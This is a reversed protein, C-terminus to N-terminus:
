APGLEVRKIAGVVFLYCAIAVLANAAVFVLALNFSNTGQVIYGIVIPTTIAAVSGFTNFLGGSLGTIEKPSTDSVVAWGLSGIGKGFYSLTMILIVLWIADVYNCIIMTTSLVLGLIIPVKRAATLSYGRRLLYDSFVGGLVGGAFGALAPLTAVFGTKLISLGRGTVLYVPFWTVFFYTLTTICYQALYVGLMMRNGLLQRLYPKPPRGATVRTRAALDMDVLAGGRELYDLEGPSMRPHDRPPHITRRWVLALGLGVMGMFFFVYRWGLRATIAGTIPAFLATSFYQASNFVASATGRESTPFWAAVIRSNGPFSPSEALGLLFRLTFLVALAAMGYLWWGVFGQLFTAASWALISYTYVRKSGFRDLLWGGPIQAIAYAWGFASFAYGLAVPTLGLDRAAAAGAISLTARDAYNVTTAVFLMILVSFRVRSIPPQTTTSTVM